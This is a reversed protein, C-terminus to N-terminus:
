DFKLFLELLRKACVELHERRLRGNALSELLNDRDGTPMRVDNGALVCNTHDSPTNWDTTVAGRFGWEDRLIGQLQEYSECCRRENILNYSAMVTYPQSEKVCIEFGRLYIERLARESVRSDSHKRNIEKNNCAFHKASAAINVSQIGNVKAAAFKGSILPDESFYEFNRGCLPNRHINLAPTLWIPFGTEKAELGGARGVEFALEPDWTCAILTACPWATTAIGAVTYLRVGAPGDVTMFVPVGLRNIGGFGGTNTITTGNNPVGCVLDVLEEDTMQAMFEDLTLKGFAVQRLNMEEEPVKAENKPATVDSYDIIPFSPLAEFTGDSLMRKELKNPACKQTLQKTVVFKEEVVYKYDALVLNRCCNGVLFTYAGGELVYASMQLKGLDDYSAMASVPFSLEIEESEDPVLLKTKKFAALSIKAKGLVGQPASFYCQVVEKGAVKGTNKVTVLVKIDDGDLKAEPKSIDFTTYSLGYGFPYNVKDAVGKITEFYRYGVYIDEYYCVYDKSENFSDASPYDSFEKAFTDTLKGSPNVDGSLIDAVALGGEMGAQWALLAADIKPNNKIWSVDIMGGVNLVVVSHEFAATVDDVMKQEVDTLYFDGKESLRDLGERSFRHITIIAVDSNKAADSILSAPVDIEDYLVYGAHDPLLPVAYDYYFRTVPEYVSLRPSKEMFGEYINRVYASYVMGSGGGGKVYDISGIGFLSVTTGEKLPLIGNNELLVMGEDAVKRSLAIHEDCGALHKGGEGIANTLCYKYRAWKEPKPITNSRTINM